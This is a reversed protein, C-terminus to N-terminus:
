LEYYNVKCDIYQKSPYGAYRYVVNYQNDRLAKLDGFNQLKEKIEKKQFEIFLSRSQVEEDLVDLLTKGDIFSDEQIVIKFIIDKGAFSVDGLSTAEDWSLDEKLIDGWQSVFQQVERPVVNRKPTTYNTEQTSGFMTYDYRCEAKYGSKTGTIRYMLNLKHKALSALESEDIKKQVIKVFDRDISEKTIEKKLFKELPIDAGRRGEDFDFKCVLNNGEVVIEDFTFYEDEIEHIMVSELMETLNQMEQPLSEIPRTSNGNNGGGCAVFSMAVIATLTSFLVKKM